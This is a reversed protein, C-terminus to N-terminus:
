RSAVNFLTSTLCVPLSYYYKNSHGWCICLKRSMWFPLFYAFYTWLFLLGAGSTKMNWLIFFFLKGNEKLIWHIMLWFCPFFSFQYFLTQSTISFSMLSDLIMGMFKKCKDVILELLLVAVSELSISVITTHSRCPGCSYRVVIYTHVAWSTPFSVLLLLLGENFDQAQDTFLIYQM